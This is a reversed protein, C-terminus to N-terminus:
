KQQGDANSTPTARVGVRLEYEGKIALKAYHLLEKLRDNERRLRINDARAVDRQCRVEDIETMQSCTYTHLEAM